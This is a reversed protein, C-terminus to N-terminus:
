HLDKMFTFHHLALNQFTPSVQIHLIFAVIYELKLTFYCYSEYYSLTYAIAYRGM